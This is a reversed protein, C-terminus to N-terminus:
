ELLNKEKELNYKSIILLLFLTTKENKCQQRKLNTSKKFAVQSSM